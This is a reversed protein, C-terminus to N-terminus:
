RGVEVWVPSTWAMEGDRQVVRLYYFDGGQPPSDDVWRAVCREGEVPLPATDANNKVVVVAKLPATGHIEAELVRPEGPKVKIEEGMWAGNVKFKVYIRAGTTGYCRRARLAEFIAERTLGKAWVAHLGGPYLWGDWRRREAEGLPRQYCTMGPCGDHSDGGACLGFRYGRGLGEQVFGKRGGGFAKIPRPNGKERPMESGGWCSYVEVLRELEPNFFDWDMGWQDPAATHHPIVIAERGELCRWLKEPTDAEETHCGFFPEDHGLYIVHRQGFFREPHRPSQNRMTTWEYGLFAAFEGPRDYYAAAKKVREWITSLDLPHGPLHDHDTLACFDLCAYDRAFTWYGDITGFGCAYEGSHGHLDGWLLKLDPEGESVVIPPSQGEVSGSEAVVRHIGPTRFTVYFRHRGKECAFFAYREPLEARDDTSRLSVAGAFDTDVRGNAKLAVVTVPVPVGTVAQSPVFVKLFKAM